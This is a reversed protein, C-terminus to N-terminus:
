AGRRLRAALRRLMPLRPDRRRYAYRLRQDIPYGRTRYM